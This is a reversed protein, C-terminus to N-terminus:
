LYSKRPQVFKFVFGKSDKLDANMSIDGKGSYFSYLFYNPSNYSELKFYDAVGTPILKFIQCVNHKRPFLRVKGRGDKDCHLYYGSEKNKFRYLNEDVKEATLTCYPSSQSIEMKTNGKGHSHCMLTYGSSANQILFGGAPAVIKTLTLKVKTAGEETKAKLAQLEGVSKAELKVQGNLVTNGKVSVGWQYYTTIYGPQFSYVQKVSTSKSLSTSDSYGFGVTSSLSFNAAGYSGGVSATVSVSAEKTKTNSWGTTVTIESREVGAGTVHLLDRSAGAIPILESFGLDIVVEETSM